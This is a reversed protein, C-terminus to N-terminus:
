LIGMSMISSCSALPSRGSLSIHERRKVRCILRAAKNQICQLKKFQASTTIGALLSNGYDLRSTLLVRVVHHCSDKDLYKRIRAINRLQYNLTRCLDGVQGTMSGDSDMIFGLNRVSKVPKIKATTVM